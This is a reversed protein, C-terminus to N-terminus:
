ARRHGRRRSGHRVRRIGCHRRAAGLTRRFRAGGPLYRPDRASPQDFEAAPLQGLGSACGDAHAALLERRDVPLVEQRVTDGHGDPQRAAPVHGVTGPLDGGRSARQRPGPPLGPGPRGGTSGCRRAHDTAEHAPRQGPAGGGGTGDSWRPERAGAASRTLEAVKQGGTFVDYRLTVQATVTYTEPSFTGINFFAPLNKTADTEIAVAPLLFVSFASRRAWVANDLRGLAAVYNPDLGTARRLAESLTVVPLSDVATMAIPPAQLQVQ